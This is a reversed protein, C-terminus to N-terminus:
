VILLPWVDIQMSKM